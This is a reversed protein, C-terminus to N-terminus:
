QVAGGGALALAAQLIGFEDIAVEQESVRILGVQQLQEAHKTELLATGSLSNIENL